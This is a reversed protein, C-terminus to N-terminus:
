PPKNAPQGSAKPTGPPASAPNEVPKDVPKPPPTVGSVEAGQGPGTKAPPSGPPLPHLARTPAGRAEAPTGGIVVTLRTPDFLRKAVRKVDALTVAQILANRQRVYGIDLNQRQFTGLQSATGSNSAFALPFSGTLYTKADDLEQQNPGNAAFSALTDKVVQVTQRVAEARTAVTGQMVAAKNYATLSTSIGYTLGRKVRVEEMLRSSFGGGGLVYNAVYGPIFDPDRRMVGPLGFAVTPQPVPLPIVHVGPAGLRGVNPLAPPLAGSVPLFTDGLLKTLATATIDGAAAVKLGNKVWHSRAFNRLDQATISSISGIEGDVPHAYAHGGFFERMFGRSAIRPPEAQDQQLSQIIQARVRTLAENDFRPRTLALQLLHMAEPANEKLTSVSIVLYDREARASFSIARNALAEHFAKSDLGGAGEDIMSGTFSALGAKGPPDYASGAPLSINFSIIPVTHDEAFWVQAARGLDINQISAARAPVPAFVCLAPMTALLTLAYAALLRKM